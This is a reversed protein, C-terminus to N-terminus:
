EPLRAEFFAALKILNKEDKKLEPAEFDAVFTEVEDLLEAFLSSNEMLDDVTRGRVECTHVTGAYACLRKYLADGLFAEILAAGKSLEALNEAVKEPAGGPGASLAEATLTRLVFADDLYGLDAAEDPILDLSKFLYNISGLLLRKTEDSIGDAKLADLVASVDKPLSTLWAPFTDLYKENVDSM